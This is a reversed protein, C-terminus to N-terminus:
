GLPSCIKLIDVKYISYYVVDTKETFVCDNLSELSMWKVPLKVVGDEKAQRYYNRAYLDETLGFDSVKIVDHLDIRCFLPTYTLQVLLVLSLIQLQGLEQWNQPFM